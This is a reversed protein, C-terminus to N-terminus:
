RSADEQRLTVHWYHLGVVMGLALLGCLVAALGGTYGWAQQVYAVLSLLVVAGAVVALRVAYEGFFRRPLAAQPPAAASLACATHLLLLSLAAVVSWPNFPDPVGAWWVALCYLMVAAPLVTHPNLICIASLATLVVIAYLTSEGAALLAVTFGFMSLAIVARLAIQDLSLARLEELLDRILTM